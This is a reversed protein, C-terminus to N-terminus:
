KKEADAPAELVMLQNTRELQIEPRNRYEVIKGTVEVTKGELAALHPFLNTYRAFVVATMTQNPFAKDFNLRMLRANGNVEAVKGKVIANAGLHDKAESSLIRLPANTNTEATAAPANTKAEQALAAVSLWGTIILLTVTTKMGRQYGRM